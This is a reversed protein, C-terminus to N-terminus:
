TLRKAWAALGSFVMGRSMRAHTRAGYRLVYFLASCTKWGNCLTSWFFIRSALSNTKNEKGSFGFTRDDQFLINDLLRRPATQCRRYRAYFRSKPSLLLERPSARRPVGIERSRVNEKREIQHTQGWVPVKM